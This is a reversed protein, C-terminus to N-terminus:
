DVGGGRGCAISLSRSVARRVAFSLSLSLSLSLDRSFSFSMRTAHEQRGGVVAVVCRTRRSEWATGGVAGKSGVLVMM